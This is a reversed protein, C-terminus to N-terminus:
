PLDPSGPWQTPVPTPPALSGSSGSSPPQLGPGGGPGGGSLRASQAAPAAERKGAPQHPEIVDCEEMAGRAVRRTRVFNMADVAKPRSVPGEPGVDFGIEKLTAMYDEATAKKREAKMRAVVAGPTMALSLVHRGASLHLTAITRWRLGPEKPTACVVDEHCSDVVWRQGGAFQGLVSLTYLGNEPVTLAVIARTGNPGSRLWQMEPGASVPVALGLSEDVQFDAGALEIASAAMPLESELNIAQLTTVALESALVPSRAKWGGFPEIPEICPPVVELRSLCTGAPVALSAAYTGRDFRTPDAEIWAMEARPALNATSFPVTQGTKAVQLIVPPTEPGRLRARVRYRGARVIGLRYTVEGATGQSPDPTLCEAGGEGQLEMGEATVYQRGTFSLSERWSLLGFVRSAHTTAELVDELGLARVLMRAWEPHTVPNPRVDGYLPILAAAAVFVALGLSPSLRRM